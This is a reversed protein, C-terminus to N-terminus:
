LSFASALKFIPKTESEPLSVFFTLCFENKFDCVIGTSTNKGVKWKM